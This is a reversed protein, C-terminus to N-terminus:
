YSCLLAAGYAAVFQPNEPVAIERGTIRKLSKWLAASKAGGGCFLIPNACGIQKIMSDIRTAIANFLGAAIDERKISHSILSVVESEAFVSCTSNIVVPNGSKLALESLGELDTEFVSSMMELFRGTGAACKDNMLFDAAQGTKGVDVIKTDQGGVDIVLCSKKGYLVYAGCAVASIETIAKGARKFTRRGYGTSIVLAADAEKIQASKLAESLAQEASRETDSGTKVISSAILSGDKVLACKTAVSGIDIGISFM